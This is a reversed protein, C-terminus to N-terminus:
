VNDRIYMEIEEDLNFDIEGLSIVDKKSFSSLVNHTEIEKNIIKLHPYHKLLINVIDMFSTEKGSVINYKKSISKVNCLRHLYKILIRLPIIDRKASGNNYILVESKVAADKILKSIGDKREDIYFITSFRVSALNNLSSRFCYNESIYKSYAYDTMEDAPLYTSDNSLFSMSSLHIFRVNPNVEECIKVIRRTLLFNSAIYNDFNNSEILASNHIVVHAAKIADKLEDDNLNRVSIITCSYTKHFYEAINGRGTFLIM